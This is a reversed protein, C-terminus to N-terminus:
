RSFVPTRPSPSLPLAPLLPTRTLSCRSTRPQAMQSLHRRSPRPQLVLHHHLARRRRLLYPRVTTRRRRGLRRPPLRQRHCQRIQSPTTPTRAHKSGSRQRTFVAQHVDQLTAQHRAPFGLSRSPPRSFLACSMPVFPEGHVRKARSRMDLFSCRREKGCARSLIGRICCGRVPRHTASGGARNRAQRRRCELSRYKFGEKGATLRETGRSGTGKEPM